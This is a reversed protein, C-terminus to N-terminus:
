FGQAEKRLREYKISFYNRDDVKFTIIRACGGFFSEYLLLYNRGSEPSYKVLIRKLRRLSKSFLISIEKEPEKWVYTTRHVGALMEDPQRRPLRISPIIKGCLASILDELRLERGRPFSLTDLTQANTLSYNQGKFSVSGSDNAATIAGVITGFPSYFTATFGSDHGYYVDFWGSQREGDVVYEIKGSGRLPVLEQLGSLQELHEM